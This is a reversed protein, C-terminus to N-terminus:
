CKDKRICDILDNLRKIEDELWQRQEPSLKDSLLRYRYGAVLAELEQVRIKALQENHAQIYEAAEAKTYFTSNYTMIALVVALGGTGFKWAAPIDSLKM